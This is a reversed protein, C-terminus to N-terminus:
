EIMLPSFRYFMCSFCACFVFYRLDHEVAVATPALTLSPQDVAADVGDVLITRL